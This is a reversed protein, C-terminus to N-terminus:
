SLPLGRALYTFYSIIARSSQLSAHMDSCVWLTDVDFNIYLGAKCPIGVVDPSFTLLEYRAMAVARSESCIQFIIPPKSHSFWRGDPLYSATPTCSLEVTNPHETVCEWIKLRLEIPLLPFLTFSETSSPPMPKANSIVCHQYHHYMFYILRIESMICLSSPPESILSTEMYLPINQGTYIEPSVYSRVLVRPSKIVNRSVFRDCELGKYRCWEVNNGLTESRVWTLAVLASDASNSPTASQLSLGLLFWIEFQNSTCLWESRKAKLSRIFTERPKSKAM